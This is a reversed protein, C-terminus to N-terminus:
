SQLIGLSTDHYEGQSSWLQEWRPCQKWSWRSVLMLKELCILLFNISQAWNTNIKCMRGRCMTEILHFLKCNEPTAHHHTRSNRELFKTKKTYILSRLHMYYSSICSVAIKEIMPWRKSNQYWCSYTKIM